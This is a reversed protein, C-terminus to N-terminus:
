EQNLLDQTSKHSLRYVDLLDYQKLALLMLENVLVRLEHETLRSTNIQLLYSKVDM